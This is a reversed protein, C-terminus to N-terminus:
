RTLHWAMVGGPFAATDALFRFGDKDSEGKVQGLPSGDSRLATVNFPRTTDLTIEATGRYLLLPLKGPNKLLTMTENEFVMDSNAVNTLQIILISNSERLAKGDLSIAAISQFCSANKVKLADAQLDGSRLTLSECLPTAVSFTGHNGDLKLQGTASEAVRKEDANQWLAAITPNGAADFEESQQPTLLTPNGAVQRDAPASSIGAVLGLNQFRNPFTRPENRDFVDNSVTYVFQEKAPAVDGRLFMAVAIRDSLQAMPDNVADFGDVNKLEYIGNNNHSWAFRYLGDWDQLAAYAGILPGGEARYMNPSCFNFETVVFPKGHIRTPMMGRPVQAMRAIASGQNYSYPLRWAHEPFGPHDFYAHNDVVDFRDRLLTLPTDNIFNLSTITAKVKLENKVFDIQEALVKEQLEHLFKLFVPNTNAAPSDPLQKEARYKRFAQEYLKVSTPSGSWSSSLVEENILNLCWLAPEEGWTLGTYPNKHSMWRRAFEKWNEMADRSVPILMKMQRQNYFDCEAIRDGPKFVRNTYLDTTIYIGSEKMRYVLYDLMDLKVPDFTLSDPTNRDLLDTDHHHLRVTNYGSRIFYEAMEDVAEKSLYNASFCLNPGYFRIRKQQANEFTLKGNKGPIIRGYKGAPADQLFSFDLPSGKIIKRNFDLKKWRSNEQITLEKGQFTRFRVPQDTLTAGVIMWMAQESAIRLTLQVPGPRKLSFSSAYLGIRADPNEESWAIVANDGRTPNWWNGCDKCAMVPLTEQTNDPYHAIIEGLVMGAPPTWASAHLLNVSQATNDPPLLLTTSKPFEGREGGALVLASRGDNKAPDTILFEISDVRRLEPTFKRLDNHPGQDTWGGKGDGAVDDVFGMNAAKDLSIPTGKTSEIRFTLRLKAQSIKGSEPQAGFRIAFTDNNYQRNDQITLRCPEEPTVVLISGGAFPIRVERVSPAQMLILKDQKAPLVIEKGDVQLMWEKAPLFFAGHLANLTVPADFAADFRLQFANDRDAMIQETVKAQQADVILKASLDLGDSTLNARIDQWDRNVAPRWSASYSQIMFSGEGLTFSGNQAIKLEKPLSGAPRTATTEGAPAIRFDLQLKAESIMGHGPDAAIRVAFSNRKFHRDDQVTMRFPETSSILLEKGDGTPLVLQRVHVNQYAILEKFEAPLVIAKGDVTINTLATPMTLAAHLSNAQAPQKQALQFNLSFEQEGRANFQESVNATIGDVSFAGTLLFQNESQTVNRNEWGQNDTFKWQASYHQISFDLKGARFTGNPKFEIGAPFQAAAPLAAAVCIACFILRITSM